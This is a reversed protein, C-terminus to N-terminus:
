ETDEADDDGDTDDDGEIEEPLAEEPEAAEPAAVEIGEQEEPDALREVSSVKEGDDVRM